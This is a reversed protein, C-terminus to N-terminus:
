SIATSATGTSAAAPEAVAANRDYHRLFLQELTPPQCTLTTIGYPGLETLLAGIRETPVQCRLRN